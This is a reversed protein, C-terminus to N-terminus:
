GLIIHGVDMHLIDYWVNDTYTGFQIPIQCREQVDISTADIWTVKYPNPHKVPRM